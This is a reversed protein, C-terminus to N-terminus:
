EVMRYSGVVTRYSGVVTRYSGVQCMIATISSNFRKIRGHFICYLAILAALVVLISNNSVKDAALCLYGSQFINSTSWTHITMHICSSYIMLETYLGNVDM